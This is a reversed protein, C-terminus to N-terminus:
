IEIGEGPRQTLERFHLQKELHEKHGKQVPDPWMLRLLGSGHQSRYPNASPSSSRLDWNTMSAAAEQRGARMAKQKPKAQTTLPYQGSEDTIVVPLCSVWHCM